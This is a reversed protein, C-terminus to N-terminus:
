ILHNVHRDSQIPHIGTSPLADHPTGPLEAALPEYKARRGNNHFKENIAQIFFNSAVASSISTHLAECCLRAGIQYGVTIGLRWVHVAAPMLQNQFATESASQGFEQKEQDSRVVVISRPDAQGVGDCKKVM